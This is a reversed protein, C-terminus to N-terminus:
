PLPQRALASSPHRRPNASIPDFGCKCFPHCRLLRCLAMWCGRMIGYESVAIAAYESCTPQFRCASATGGVAHLVPSLTYKYIRQLVTVVREGRSM